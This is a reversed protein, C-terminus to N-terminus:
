SNVVFVAAVAFFWCLSLVLVMKLMSSSAKMRFLTFGSYVAPLLAGIEGLALGKVLGVVPAWESQIFVMETIFAFVGLAICGLLLYFARDECKKYETSTM